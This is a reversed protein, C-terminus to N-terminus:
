LIIGEAIVNKYLPTVSMRSNWDEKTYVFISIPAEIMLELDYLSHRIKQEEKFSVV